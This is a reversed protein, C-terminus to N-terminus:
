NKVILKKRFTFFLILGVLHFIINHLYNHPVFLHTFFSIFYILFLGFLGVLSLNFLQSKNFILHNFIIGYGLTSFLLFLPYFTFTILNLLM